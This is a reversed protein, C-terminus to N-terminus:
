VVSKRDPGGAGHYEDAGREQDEARKFYPLVDQYSWGANGLQRWMDFDQAQGRVYLLGNVASTGGLVRGRPWPVIRGDLHPEPGCDFQWTLDPNFMTRFYGAPIHLWPNRDPGGAELLAVTVSPDATLRNALVCGASGAGIIVYDFTEAGGDSSM